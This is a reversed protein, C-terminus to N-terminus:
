AVLCGNEKRELQTLFISMSVGIANHLSTRENQRVISTLIFPTKDHVIRELHTM